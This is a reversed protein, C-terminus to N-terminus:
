RASQWIGNQRGEGKGRMGIGRWREQVGRFAIPTGLLLGFPILPVVIWVLMTFVTTTATLWAIGIARQLALLVYRLIIPALFHWIVWVVIAFPPITYVLQQIVRIWSTIDGTATTITDADKESIVGDRKAYRQNRIILWRASVHSINGIGSVLFIYVFVRIGVEISAKIGIYPIVPAIVWVVVLWVISSAADRIITIAPPGVFMAYQWLPQGLLRPITWILFFPLAYLIFIGIWNLRSKSIIKLYASLVPWKAKSSNM